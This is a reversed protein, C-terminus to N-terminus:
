IVAELEQHNAIADQLVFKLSLTVLTVTAGILIGGILGFAIAPGAAEQSTLWSLLAVLLGTFAFASGALVNVWKVSIVSILEGKIIRRLLLYISLLTMQTALTISSLLLQILVGDGRFEIYSAPLELSLMPILLFHLLMGFTILLWIVLTALRPFLIEKDIM